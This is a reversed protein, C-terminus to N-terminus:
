YNQVSFHNEVSYYTIFIFLNRTLKSIADDAIVAKAWPLV